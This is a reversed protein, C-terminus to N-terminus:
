KIIKAEWKVPKHSYINVPENLCDHCPDSTEDCDRYKCFKCYVDFYVEEYADCM